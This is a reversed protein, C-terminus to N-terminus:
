DLTLGEAVPTRLLFQRLRKFNNPVDKLLTANSSAEYGPPTVLNFVVQHTDSAVNRPYWYAATSLKLDTQSIIGPTSIGNHKVLYKFTLLHAGAPLNDLHLYPKIYVYTLNAKEQSTITLQLMEGELHLLVPNVGDCALWLNCIVEATCTEPFFEAYIDALAIDFQADEPFPPLGDIKPPLQAMALTALAVLVCSVCFTSFIQRLNRM